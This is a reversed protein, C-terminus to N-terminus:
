KIIFQVRGSVLMGIFTVMAVSVGWAMPKFTAWMTAVKRHDEELYTVFLQLIELQAKNTASIRKKKLEGEIRSQLIELIEGNPM